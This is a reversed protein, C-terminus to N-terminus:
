GLKKKISFEQHQTKRFHVIMEALLGFILLQMGMGIMLLVVALLPSTGISVGWVWRGFVLYLFLVSGVFITGLGFGGFLHMPRVLYTTLFIVTLMDLAGHLYREFGYKSVGFRRPHHDIKIEKVLFGKRHALVPIFRHMDGYIPLEELVERRYAKLGCNFDHIPLGSLRSITRNFFKSPLTKELPDDRNIRWGSVLDAGNQIEEIIRPMDKPDNQLDADITMIIDGQAEEIGASLGASKGFNKRFFVVKVQIKSNAQLEELIQPSRDTSGDDVYIVEAAYDTLASEIKQHLEPLSEEENYVPVVLSVQTPQKTM